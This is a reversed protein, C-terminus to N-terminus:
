RDDRTVGNAELVESASVNRKPVTSVAPSGFDHTEPSISARTRAKQMFTGEIVFLRAREVALGRDLLNRLLQRAVVESEAESLPAM